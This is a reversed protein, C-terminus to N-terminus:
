PENPDLAALSALLFNSCPASLSCIHGSKHSGGHHLPTQLNFICVQEKSRASRAQPPQLLCHKMQRQIHAKLEKDVKIEACASFWM